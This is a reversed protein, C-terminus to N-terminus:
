LVPAEWLSATSCVEPDAELETIVADLAEMVEPNLANLAKPRDITVVAVHANHRECKLVNSM